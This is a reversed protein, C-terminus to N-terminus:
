DTDYVSLFYSTFVAGAGRRQAQDHPIPRSSRRWTTVQSSEERDGRERPLQPQWCLTRTSAQAESAPGPGSKDVLPLHFVNLVLQAPHGFTHGDRTMRPWFGDHRKYGAERGEIVACTLADSTELAARCGLGM